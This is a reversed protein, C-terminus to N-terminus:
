IHILSLTVHRPGKSGSNKFWVYAGGACILLGLGVLWWLLRHTRPKRSAALVQTISPPTSKPTDSM